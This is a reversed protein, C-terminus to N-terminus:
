DLFPIAGFKGMMYAKDVKEGKRPSFADLRYLDSIGTDPDKETFFIQDRRTKELNMQCIDHTTAILQAGRYEEKNFLSIVFEVIMPHLSRDIEDIILVKRNELIDKLVPAIYLLDRTGLSEMDMPLKYEKGNQVKHRANIHIRFQEAQPYATDEKKEKVELDLGSINIDANRILQEAFALSDRKGEIQERVYIRTAARKLIAPETFTLISGTLYEYAARTQPANWSNAVALFLKNAPKMKELKKLGVSNKSNYKYTGNAYDFIRSAASTNYVYLYEETIRDATYSFGYIYKKSDSATFQFEFSTPEAASEDDLMFPTFPLNQNPQIGSSTGIMNVAFTIASFLATKGSANAGYILAYNLARYKGNQLIHSTLEHGSGPVLDFVKEDRYSMFNTVSFRLLM